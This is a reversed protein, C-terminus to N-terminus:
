QEQMKARRRLLYWGAVLVVLALFILWYLYASTRPLEGPRPYFIGFTSFNDVDAWLINDQASVGQDAIYLKDWRRLVENWRYLELSSEEVGEPLPLTEEYSLELRVRTGALNDSRRFCFYLGTPVKGKPAGDGSRDCPTFSVVGSINPPGGLFELKVGGFDVVGYGNENLDVRAFLTKPGAEWFEAFLTRDSLATFSYGSELISYLKSGELYYVFAYGDNAEAALTVTDGHEYVGSGTVTGGEPPEPQAVINYTRHQEAAFIFKVSTSAGQLLNGSSQDFTVTLTLEEDEDRALRTIDIGTLDKLPGSYYETFNRGTVDIWLINYISEDGTEKEASLTFSFDHRGKNSVTVRASSTDGPAMNQETFLPTNAPTVTIGLDDGIIELESAFTWGTKTALMMGVAIFLFMVIIAASGAIKRYM